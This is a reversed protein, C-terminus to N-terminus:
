GHFFEILKTHLSNYDLGCERDQDGITGYNTLFKKPVSIQLVDSVGYCESIVDPLIGGSYYPEIIAIKKGYYGISIDFPALTTHYIISVDLEECAEVVRKLLTGVVIVEGLNGDKIKNAIGFRAPIHINHGNDSLRMYVASKGFAGKFLSDIEHRSGPVIVSINPITKIIPIDAPCQHTCGLASYDYSAGISVISVPLNQYGIDIKIQELCREVVFPAISYFIPLFGEKAMGSAISVIAQECVGINFTREPYKVFLNRFGYVGIEGLILVAKDNTKFIDEVTQIFQSRM